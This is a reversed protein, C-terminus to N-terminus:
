EIVYQLADTMIHVSISIFVHMYLKCPAFIMMNIYKEFQLYANQSDFKQCLARGGFHVCLEVRALLYLVRFNWGGCVNMKRTHQTTTTTTTTPQAYKYTSQSHTIQKNVFLFIHINRTNVYCHWLWSHTTHTFEPIKQIVHVVLYIQM